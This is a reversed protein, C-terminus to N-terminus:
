APSRDPAHRRSLSHQRRRGARRASRAATDRLARERLDAVRAQALYYITHNM